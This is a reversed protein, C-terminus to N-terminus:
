MTEIGVSCRKVLLLKAQVHNCESCACLDYLNRFYKLGYDSTRGCASEMTEIMDQYCEFDTQTAMNPTGTVTQLEAFMEDYMRRSSIEQNLEDQTEGNMHKSHRNILFMLKNDRSHVSSGEQRAGIAVSKKQSGIFNSVPETTFSLDGYQMVNSKTVQAKLKTYQAQLTERSMDVADADEMWKISFLDGLCSGIHVGNVADDPPCYFGWSSETPNAATLAYFKQDTPFDQFMSGSECSELYFVAESYQKNKWMGNLVPTLDKSYLYSRPFGILGPAGHDAFNIFVKDASTSKLVRGTGVGQMAKADQKLVSLFNQPTVDNGRYDIKCGAYVDQGNPQNYLKGKAPNQSSGAVDDFSFLIINEAPIGGAVLSHYAHCVDAQHRYNYFGNSGAVIVAWNAAYSGGCLLMLTAFIAFKSM